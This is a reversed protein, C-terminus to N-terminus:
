RAAPNLGAPAAGAPTFGAARQPSTHQARAATIALVIPVGYDEGTTVDISAITAAPRPNTWPMQYLVLHQQPDRPSPATWAVAAEPFGQPQPSLWHGVGRDYRVPVTATQGDAYHIVYQFVAPAPSKDEPRPRWDRTRHLTHLFFLVDAKKGVAIDKVETPLGKVGSGALMICAPLPSTKFDRLVYDVGAFKQEGRPLQGLDPQGPLWGRDSTLFQNCKDNLPVPLYALDTGAVLLKEAAFTAGLNRLLTAVLNQKKPGNVPNPENELIRLQNLVVGGKGLRYKVLTGINLLPVVREQYTVDRRVKIWLNDVGTTPQKGRTDFAVPELTIKRCLRPPLPFEQKLEPVGKLDLTVADSERDDFILRLKGIVQYHTNLIISFGVIEEPHPFEASWRPHPDNKLEHYFIFKWSDASTLGNTMQSWGYAYKPDPKAFPAIDDLDVVQTFTDKGPYRDAAWPYIAETGELVVDRATIGALLPDRQAPLTVREMRFPRLVHRIGVVRNYDALGEPTLGWLMLYGGRRTFSELAGASAALKALNAPSADAVIIEVKPNALASAIDAAAQQKLDIRDLLKLRLDGPPFVSATTKAPLKYNLCYRVLNDLLRRAVPDASLKSGMAVQALVLVGDKVPCECLASCSLEDDCQLLSRAGHSAKKYVNRYVVHDGSWCFFDEAGLGACAPHELDEPFAIRGVHETATLDAPVAQYHLPHKQDLVLVRTGSAALAVWRPDTAERATLADPGIMLVKMKAPLNDLVAAERYQYGREKLWRQVSGRPDYVTIEEGGVPPPPSPPPLIVLPKVDRFVTQGGRDCTLVLEGRTRSTVPPTRFSIDFEEATGPALSFSQAGEGFAKGDIRFSWAVDIPDDFRTDNFVKLLREVLQGADFTWNWQRCLVAVPQFARYHENEPSTGDFWFHFGAIGHWRYGEALMRAFRHVGKESASRGLFAQEGMIAAYAAPPHGNAFFSEGLFLPRDDGLPWPTWPDKHRAFALKMTYAEDPYERFNAENYHNGYIPLSRDRLADGGDIMAPRTPDIAMAVRVGRRIEPECADHLGFNRINIFTIENEISWIFICPHNREAKIQAQVQHIWNDFLAKRAVHKGGRDEVLNYSGGEGDFIGSRRVPMGLTDFFDLTEEQSDGVWPRQGWYRVTNIGSKKWYQAVKEKDQEAIRGGFTTDAHFHWPVGNLRFTQGSWQWERFGFKTRREDVVRSGVSLRTVVQYMQPDDPWWLRPNKWAEALRITKEQDPLLRVTIPTFSKEIAGGQLPVIENQVEVDGPQSSSNHLTIELGLEKRSVSPMAFVDASYAPGTVTLTPTELLGAGAVQLLVPFDANRTAGGGGGGTYFWSAPYNYLGRISKGDGTKEIAYYLDKIAVVIENDKGPIIARTIDADWVACPATSGGCYQGNVFVSALLVTSPFRLIFSRGEQGAPVHVRTRYLFRHCYLLDPRVDDRNGPVKAAKWFLQQYDAPLQKVPQARDQIEQEDWRAM